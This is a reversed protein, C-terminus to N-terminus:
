QGAQAVTKTSGARAAEQKDSEAKLWQKYTERPVVKLYGIMSAHGSGCLQACTIPFIHEGNKNAEKPNLYDSNVQFWIPLQLGPIADKCVRLPLVKFSHIVDMSTIKLAVPMDAPVVVANDAKNANLMVIDDISGDTNDIGFPNDTKNARLISQPAFKGDNGGYRANWDFQKALIHIDTGNGDQKAAEAKIKDIQEKDMIEGWLPAAFSVILVLEALIVGYEAVTTWTKGPGEPEAVPNATRRFRYLCWIFYITWGVFLIAMLVHVFVIMRDVNWGHETVPPPSQFWDAMVTEVSSDFITLTYPAAMKSNVLLIALIAGLIAGGTFMLVRKTLYQKM